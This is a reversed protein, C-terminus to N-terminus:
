ILGFTLILCTEVVSNFHGKHILEYHTLLVRFALAHFFFECGVYAM